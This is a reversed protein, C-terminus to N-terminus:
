GHGKPWHLEVGARELEAQFDFLHRPLERVQAPSIRHARCYSALAGAVEGINWEIPHVRMCGNTIHTTGCNKAGPLLNRVRIPILMGLPLEFPRTPIDLYPDGSTSPHLDIRYSGIGITDPYTAVRSKPSPVLDQETVRYQALMRRSERVYPRMALGDTTGTVDGRPRLGPWGLGGDVRPAETQLWYLFALALSRAGALNRARSEDDVDVIPGLAYDTMPWNIITVDSASASARHGRAIVRRYTWLEPGLRGAARRDFTESPDDLLTPNFPYTVSELTRPHPATWSLLPGPWHPPRYSRWFDYDAPREITHNQGLVHGVALGYTIAQMRGPQHGVSAHPEGTDDQSEAGTIYEVGALPLLDGTETADIFYDASILIREGEQNVLAVGLVRDQDVVAATPTVNLMTRLQGSSEFPLLLQEIVALAVRPEHCLRSVWGGGPNLYRRRRAEDTLDFWRRYYCRVGRRMERYSATSGFREIWAHEDPPVAQSTLQGGLWSSEETVIVRQGSRLASLAAAVGGVGGGIVAV